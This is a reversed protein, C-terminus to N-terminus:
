SFFFGPSPMVGRRSPWLVGESRAVLWNLARIGDFPQGLLHGDGALGPAGARIWALVRRRRSRCVMEGDAVLRLLAYDVVAVFAM